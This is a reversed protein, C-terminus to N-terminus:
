AGRAFWELLRGFNAPSLNRATAWVRRCFRWPLSRTDLHTMFVDPFAAYYSLPASSGGWFVIERVGQKILEEILYSRLVVSLSERSRTRDNLQMILIARDGVYWGGALGIWEGGKGRLGMLMPSPMAEIMALHRERTQKSRAFFAAKPLLCRTAASFESFELVPSFKNGALESKRRYYRFNRRTRSGLKVLFEDYTRPLQLHAHSKTGYFSIDAKAQVGTLFPLRNSTVVFRLAVMHKLLAKVGCSMVSEVEEPHAAVMAGLTDDGFAVRIGIGAVVREKCYLLGAIRKGQSVLVLLPRWGRPSVSALFFSPALM